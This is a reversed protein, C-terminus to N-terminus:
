SISLNASTQLLTLTKNKNNRLFPQTLEYTIILIFASASAPTILLHHHTINYHKYILIIIKTQYDRM